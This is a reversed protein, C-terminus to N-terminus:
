GAFAEYFDVARVEVGWGAIEGLNAAPHKSAIAIAEERDRAEIMFFGGVYEKTEAFPGDTVTPKGGHPRVCRTEGVEALSAHFLLHGSAILAADYEPCRSVIADRQAPTLADFRRPDYYALCLFKM